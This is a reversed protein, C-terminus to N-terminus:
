TIGKEVEEMYYTEPIGMVGAERMAERLEDSHAFKRMNELTDSEWLGVITNPDDVSRFIRHLIEGGAKRAKASEESDFNEKWKAFDQVKIISIGFAM